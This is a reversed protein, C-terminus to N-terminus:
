KGGKAKKKEVAETRTALQEVMVQSMLDFADIVRRDTIRYFATTGEVRKQVVGSNRLIALQQSVNTPPIEMLQALEGVSCEKDRLHDLIELRKAHVISKCLEAHFQYFDRKAMVEKKEAKTRIHSCECYHLIPAVVPEM